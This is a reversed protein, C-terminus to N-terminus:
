RESGGDNLYRKGVMISAGGLAAVGAVLLASADGTKPLTKTGSDKEDSSDSPQSDKSDDNSDADTNKSQDGTEDTDSNNTKDESEVKVEGDSGVGNSTGGTGDGEVSGEDTSSSGGNGPNSSGLGNSPAKNPTSAGGDGESQDADGEGSTDGPNADGSPGDNSDGGNPVNSADDGSSSSGGEGESSGADGGVSGEDGSAGNSGNGNSDDAVNSGGEDGPTGTGDTGAGEDTGTSDSGPDEAGNSSDGGAGNDVNGNDGSTGANAAAEDEAIYDLCTAREKEYRNIWSKHYQTNSNYKALSEPLSDVIANVFERDTMDNSLDAATLYKKVGGTGFLNTMSWVLGKVCDARGTIDIGQTALWRETPQYYNSIAYSDQLAAFTDPAAAYADHWANEALQGIETLKGAKTDYIVTSASTLESARDILPKFMSFTVPDYQYCYRMLPVLSYRRDFQYYGMAHYGDYRSFGQDYNKGSEYLTFYKMENTAGTVLTRASGASLTTALLSPQYFDSKDYDDPVDIGESEPTFDDTTGESEAVSAADAAYVSVPQALGGLALTGVLGALVVRHQFRM